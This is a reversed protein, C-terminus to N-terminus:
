TGPSTVGGSPWRILLVPTVAMANITASGALRVGAGPVGGNGQLNQLLLRSSGKDPNPASLSTHRMYRPRVPTVKGSYPDSGARPGAATQMWALGVRTWVAGGGGYDYWCFPGAAESHLNAEVDGPQWWYVYPDADIQDPAVQPPDCRDMMLLSMLSTSGGPSYCAVYQGDAGAFVQGVFNSDRIGIDAFGPSADTGSGFIMIGGAASPVQTATGGTPATWSVTCRWAFPINNRQLTWYRGAFEWACWARDNELSGAGTDATPATGIVTTGDSSGVATGGASIAAQMLRRHLAAVSVGTLDRNLTDAM